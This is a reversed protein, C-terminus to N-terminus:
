FSWPLCFVGGNLILCLTLQHCIPILSLKQGTAHLVLWKLAKVLFLSFHFLMLVQGLWMQFTVGQLFITYCFAMISTYDDDLLVGKMGKM